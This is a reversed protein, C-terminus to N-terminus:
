ISVNNEKITYHVHNLDYTKVKEIINDYLKEDTYKKIEELYADKLKKLSTYFESIGKEKFINHTFEDSSFEILSKELENDNKCIEVISELYKISIAFGIMLGEIPPVPLKDPNYSPYSPFPIEWSDGIGEVFASFSSVEEDFSYQFCSQYAQNVFGDGIEGNTIELLFESDPYFISLSEDILFFGRSVNYLQQFLLEKDKM